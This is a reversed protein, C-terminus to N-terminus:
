YTTNMPMFCSSLVILFFVVAVGFLFSPFIFYRNWCRCSWRRSSCYIYEVVDLWDEKSYQICATQMWHMSHRTTFSTNQMTEYFTKRRELSEKERKEYVHDLRIRMPMANPTFNQAALSFRKQLETRKREKRHMKQETWKMQRTAKTGCTEIM